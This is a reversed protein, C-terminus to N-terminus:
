RSGLGKAMWQLSGPSPSTQRPRLSNRSGSSPRGGLRKAMGQWSGASPSTQRPRLSNQSGSSPRRGLGKAMWQLSSLTPQSPRRTTVQPRLAYPTSLKLIRKKKLPVNIVQGARLRNFDIGPNLKRVDQTFRKRDKYGYDDALYWIRDGYRVTHPVFLVPVGIDVRTRPIHRMPKRNTRPSKPRRSEALVREAERVLDPHLVDRFKPPRITPDLVGFQLKKEMIREALFIAELEPESYLAKLHNLLIRGSRRKVIGYVGHALSWGLKGSLYAMRPKVVYGTKSSAAILTNLWDVDVKRGGRLPLYVNGHGKPGWTHGEKGFSPQFRKAAEITGLLREAELMEGTRLLDTAHLKVGRVTHYREPLFNGWKPLRPAHNSM